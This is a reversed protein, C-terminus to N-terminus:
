RRLALILNYFLVIVILFVLVSFVLHIVFNKRAFSKGEEDPNNKSERYFHLLRIGRFILIAVTLILLAIYAIM